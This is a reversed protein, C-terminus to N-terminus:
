HMWKPEGQLHTFVNPIVLQGDDQHLEQAPKLQESGGHLVVVGNCLLKHGSKNVALEDWAVSRPEGDAQNLMM